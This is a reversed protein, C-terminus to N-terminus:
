VLIDHYNSLVHLINMIYYVKTLLKPPNTLSLLGQSINLIFHQHTNVTVICM